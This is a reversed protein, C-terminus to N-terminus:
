KEQHPPYAPPPKEYEAQALVIPYPQQQQQQQGYPQTNVSPAYNAQPGGAVVPVPYGTQTAPVYMVTAHPQQSYVATTMVPQGMVVFGRANEPYVTLLGGQWDFVRRGGYHRNNLNNCMTICEHNEHNTTIVACGCLGLILGIPGLVLTCILTFCAGLLCGNSTARKKEMLMQNWIHQEVQGELTGPVISTIQDNSFQIPM